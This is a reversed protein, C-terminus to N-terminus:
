NIAIDSLVNQLYRVKLIKIETGAPPMILPNQINNLACIVWWLMISNYVKWSILPWTDSPMLTYVDYVDSSLDAPFNITKLLNYFYGINPDTYVNFINEYQQPSLTYSIDTLDNQKSM